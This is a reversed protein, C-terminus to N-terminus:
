TKAAAAPALKALDVQAQTLVSQLQASFLGNIQLLESQAINPQAAVIQDKLINAQLVANLPNTNKTVSNLFTLAPPILAVLEEDKTLTLLAEFIQSPTM